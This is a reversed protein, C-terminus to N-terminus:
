CFLFHQEWLASCGISRCCKMEKVGCSRLTNGQRDAPQEVLSRRGLETDTFESTLYVAALDYAFHLCRREYIQDSNCPLKVYGCDATPAHTAM